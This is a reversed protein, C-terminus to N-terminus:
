YFCIYIKKGDFIGNEGYCEEIDIVTGLWDGDEPLPILKGDANIGLKDGIHFHNNEFYERSLAVVLDPTETIKGNLSDNYEQKIKPLLIKAFNGTTTHM